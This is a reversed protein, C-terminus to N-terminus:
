LKNENNENSSENSENNINEKMIENRKNLVIVIISM